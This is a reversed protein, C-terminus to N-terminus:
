RTLMAKHDATLYEEKLAWRIMSPQNLVLDAAKFTFDRYKKTDLEKWTADQLDAWDFQPAEYVFGTWTTGCLDALMIETNINIRSTRLAWLINQPDYGKDLAYRCFVQLRSEPRLNQNRKM